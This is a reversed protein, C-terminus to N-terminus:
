IESVRNTVRINSRQNVGPHGQGAVAGATMGRLGMNAKYLAGAVIGGCSYHLASIQNTYVM